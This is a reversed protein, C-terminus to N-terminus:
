ASLHETRNKVAVLRGVHGGLDAQRFPKQLWNWGRDAGAEAASIAIDTILLVPLNPWRKRVATALEVGSFGPM